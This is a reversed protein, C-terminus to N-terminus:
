VGLKGHTEIIAAIIRINSSEFGAYRTFIIQVFHREHSKYCGFMQKEVGINSNHKSLSLSDGSRVRKM